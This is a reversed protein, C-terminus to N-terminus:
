SRTPRWAPGSRLRGLDEPLEPSEIETTTMVGRLRSSSIANNGVFRIEKVGTKDGENITFVVDIAATRCTSSARAHGPRPGRGTRRYVDLIRQVDADVIAQSYPGRAQTQVEQELIAREVKRNGEFVVRNISTTRASASSSRRGRRSVSVNSFM